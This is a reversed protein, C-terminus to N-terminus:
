ARALGFAVGHLRVERRRLERSVLLLQPSSLQM